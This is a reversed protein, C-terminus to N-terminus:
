RSDFRGGLGQGDLRLRIPRAQLRKPTRAVWMRINFLVRLQRGAAPPCPSSPARKLLLADILFHLLKRDYEVDTAKYQEPERNVWSDVVRVSAPSGELRLDLGRDLKSPLEVM